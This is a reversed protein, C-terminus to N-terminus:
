IHILSLGREANVGGRRRVESRPQSLSRLACAGSRGACTGITAQDALTEILHTIIQYIAADNLAAVFEERNAMQTVWGELGLGLRGGGQANACIQWEEARGRETWKTVPDAPM